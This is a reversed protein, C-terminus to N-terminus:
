ITCLKDTKNKRLNNTETPFFQKLFKHKYTFYIFILPFYIRFMVLFANTQAQEM